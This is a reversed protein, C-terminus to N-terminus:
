NLVVQGGPVLGAAELVKSLTLLGAHMPLGDAAAVCSWRELKGKESVRERKGPACLPFAPAALPQRRKRGHRHTLLAVAAATV